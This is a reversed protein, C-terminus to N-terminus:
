YAQCSILVERTLEGDSTEGWDGRDDGSGFPRWSVMRSFWSQKKAEDVVDAFIAGEAEKATSEAMHSGDDRM